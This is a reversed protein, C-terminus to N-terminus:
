RSINKGNSDGSIDHSKIPLSINFTTGEGIVSTFDIRGGHQEIIGYSIALGLGTGSEKTTFFPDFIKLRLNEPIGGGTDSITLSIFDNGNTMSTKIRLEGGRIMSESANIILNICVQRIQDPDAMIEPINEGFEEVIKINRFATQNHVFLVIQELISNIDTLKKVPATQRSFDLLRKVIERCRITEKVIVELDERRQDSDELDDRLLSANTLIGTLPNNIEHAVGAALKGISALKESRFLQSHIKQIEETRETVKKELIEGWTELERKERELRISMRTISHALSEIERPADIILNQNYNGKAIQDAAIELRKLPKSIKRALLLSIWIILLVGVIVIGLFTIITNRLIDNFPKELIGVYLIGIIKNDLNRIPEYATIYWTNVVFARGVWKKGEVLVKDYVEESVLSSIARTGDLNKVNTSIRLDNQFITATGIDSGEYVEKEHVVEKIKDVIDFNRNLLIGGILIGIFVNDEDFIPVASKIMMGSTEFSDKREKAKPTPTIEMRVQDVLEQSEKQLSALPVIDTGSVLKKGRIVKDIFNDSKINDGGSQINRGRVIVNGNRDTLTLFDLKERKLARPLDKKLFDTDNNKIANVILIRVSNFRVISEIQSIKNRYIEHASNLDSICKTESRSIIQDHILKIGVISTIIAPIVIAITFYLILQSQISKATLKRMSGRMHM